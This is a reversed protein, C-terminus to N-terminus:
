VICKRKQASRIKIKELFSYPVRMQGTGTGLQVHPKRSGHFDSGGSYLLEYEDALCRAKASMSEDFSSHYIEMADLSHEKANKLFDRLLAVDPMSQLPHAVVSVAGISNLLDITDLSDLRKPPVYLGCKRDLLSDFAASVSQAYGKQVLEAAINARNVNGNPSKSKIQSYSIHYGINNLKDILDINSHEKDARPKSFAETLLNYYRPEVFLGIIHVETENYETSIEVGPVGEIGFLTCQALFEPLGDVTNHDTLALATLGVSKALTVIEGPSCSGDSYNSHTHLDVAPEDCLCLKDNKM